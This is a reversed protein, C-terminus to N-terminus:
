GSAQTGSTGERVYYFFICSSAFSSWSSTTNIKWNVKWVEAAINLSPKTISVHTHTGKNIHLHTPLFSKKTSKKQINTKSNDYDSKYERAIASYGFSLYRFLTFFLFIIFAANVYHARSQFSWFFFSKSQWFFLTFLFFSTALSSTSTFIASLFVASWVCFLSPSDLLRFQILTSVQESHKFLLLLFFFPFLFFLSALFDFLSSFLFSFCFCLCFLFFLFSFFPFSFNCFLLFRLPPFLLYLLSIYFPYYAQIQFCLLFFFNRFFTFFQLFYFFIIIISNYFSLLFIFVGFFSTRSFDPNLCLFVLIGTQM